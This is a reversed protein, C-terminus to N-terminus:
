LLCIHCHCSCCINKEPNWIFNKISETQQLRNASSLLSKSEKESKMEQNWKGRRKRKQTGREFHSRLVTQPKGKWSRSGQVLYNSPRQERRTDTKGPLRPVKSPHHLDIKVMVHDCTTPGEKEKPSCGISLPLKEMHFDQCWHSSGVM